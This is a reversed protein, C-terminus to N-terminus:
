FKLRVGGNVVFGDNPAWADVTWSGDNARQTRVMPHYDTQRVNLINELNLFWSVKGVTIEGLAGLEVYSSGRNRYPNGDLEQKGTYYAELGVRGRGHQEWMAVFGATHKPTLPVIRRAGQIGAPETSDMFVYSGTVVFDNRRYRALLEAGQTRTPGNVNILQMRDIAATSDVLTVAHDVKSAFLSVNTEWPGKVRGVDFSATTAIEARLGTM